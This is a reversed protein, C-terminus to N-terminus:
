KEEAYPGTKNQKWLENLQSDMEKKLNDSLSLYKEELQELKWKDVPMKALPIQERTMQRARGLAFRIVYLEEISLSLNIKIDEKKM